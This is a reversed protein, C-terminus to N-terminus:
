RELRATYSSASFCAGPKGQRTQSLLKDANAYTKLMKNGVPHKKLVTPFIDSRVSFRIGALGVARM